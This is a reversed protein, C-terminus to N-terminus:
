AGPASYGFTPAPLRGDIVADAVRARHWAGRGWAQDLSWARRMWVHLDQEWTYGLAGYVQLSTKVAATAAETAAVKASSADVARSDAAHAVSYAARYVLSRAYEVKVKVNALMHKIAQFTGIAVGFQKRTCAYEVGMDILQQGVGLQAAACGFAGRDIAASWAARGAEGDAIKTAASAKWDVSFLRRSPDNSREATLTVDAAAVAHVEDGHQLLLLDAIHADSVFPSIAAGVALTTEGAAIKPLWQACLDPSGAEQLLRVGVSTTDIVPGPVAARGTEELLLAQDIEDMALGGHEESILLGPIGIEAVQAWFESSRGTETDWLGRVFEPTCEGALFERITQQLLLQDESFTFDM